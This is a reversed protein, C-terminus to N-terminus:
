TTLGNILDVPVSGIGNGILELASSRLTASPLAIDPARVSGLSLATRGARKGAKTGATILREASM